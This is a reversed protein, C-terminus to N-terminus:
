LRKNGYMPLKLSEYVVTNFYYSPVSTAITSQQFERVFVTDIPDKLKSVVTQLEVIGPNNSYSAFSAILALAKVKKPYDIAFRQAITSGMSHGVIVAQKLKMKDMFVAVDKAFKKPSYNNLPRSSNGHGRQSIVFAHISSPLHSLVLEYSHWSDTYGHLFIVPTGSSNGQEVYELKVGTSLSLSKVKHPITKEPVKNEQACTTTHYIISGIFVFTILIIKRM